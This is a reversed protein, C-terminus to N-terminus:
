PMIACVQNVIKLKVLCGFVLVVDTEPYDLGLGILKIVSKIMVVFAVATIDFYFCNKGSPLILFM